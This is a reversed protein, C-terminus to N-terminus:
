SNEKTATAAARSATGKKVAAQKAVTTKYKVPLPDGGPYTADKDIRKYAGDPAADFHEVPVSLEHGTDAQKVRVYGPM